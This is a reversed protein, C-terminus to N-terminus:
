QILAKIKLYDGVPNPIFYETVKYFVKDPNELCKYNRNIIRIEVPVGGHEFSILNDEITVKQGFFSDTVIKLIGLTDETLYRKRVGLEIKDGELKEKLVGELTKGLVLFPIQARGLLDEATALAQDLQDPSLEPKLGNKNQTDNNM